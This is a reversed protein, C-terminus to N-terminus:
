NILSNEYKHTMNFLSIPLFLIFILDFRDLYPNTFSAFLIGLIGNFFIKKNISIMQKRLLFISLSFLLLGFLGIQNVLNLYFLEYSAPNTNSRIYEPHVGLGNGWIPNNLWMNFLEFFQVQRTLASPNNNFDIINISVSYLLILLFVILFFFKINKVLLLILVFLISLLLGFRGLFITFLILFLSVLYFKIKTSNYFYDSVIFASVFPLINMQPFTFEAMGKNYAYKSEFFPIQGFDSVIFGLYLSLSLFLVTFFSLYVIRHFIKFDLKINLFIISYIFPFIVLVLSVKLFEPSKLGLILPIIFACLYVGIYKFEFIRLIKSWRVFLLVLLLLSYKIYLFNYELPFIFCLALFIYLLNKM